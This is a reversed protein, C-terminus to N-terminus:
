LRANGSSDRVLCLQKTGIQDEVRGAISPTCKVDLLGHAPYSSPDIVQCDPSAALFGITQHVHLGTHLVKVPHGSEAMYQQYSSVVAPENDRGFKLAGVSVPPSKYLLQDVLSLM